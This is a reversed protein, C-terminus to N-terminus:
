KVLKKFKKCKLCLNGYEEKRMNKNSGLIFWQRGEKCYIRWDWQHRCFLQKIKNFM